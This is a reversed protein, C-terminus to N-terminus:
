GAAINHDPEKMAAFALDTARPTTIASVNPHHCNWTKEPIGKPQPCRRLPVIHLPDERGALLKARPALDKVCGRLLSAVASEGPLGGGQIHQM